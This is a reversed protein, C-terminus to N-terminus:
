NVGKLLTAVERFDDPRSVITEDINAPDKEDSAHICYWVIDTVALIRHHMNAQINICAPAEYRATGLATIVVAIGKALISLHSDDHKHQVIDMGALIRIEKAYVGESFHHTLDHEMM